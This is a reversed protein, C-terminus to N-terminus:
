QHMINIFTYTFLHQTEIANKMRREHRITRRTRRVQRRKSLWFDPHEEEDCASEEDSEKAVLTKSLKVM